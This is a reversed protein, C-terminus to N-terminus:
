HLRGSRPTIAMAGVQMVSAGSVAGLAKWVGDRNVWAPTTDRVPIDAARRPQNYLVIRPAITTEM